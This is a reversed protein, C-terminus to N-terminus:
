ATKSQEPKCRTHGTEKCVNILSGVGGFRGVLSEHREEVVVVVEDAGGVEDAALFIGLNVMEVIQDFATGNEDFEVVIKQTFTQVVFKTTIGM